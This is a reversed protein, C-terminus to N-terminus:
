SKLILTVSLLQSDLLGPDLFGRTFTVSKQLKVRLSYSIWAAGGKRFAQRVRYPQNKERWLEKSGKEYATAQCQSYKHQSCEKFDANELPTLVIGTAGLKFLWRETGSKKDLDPKSM